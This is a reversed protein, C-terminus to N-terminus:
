KETTKTSKGLRYKIGLSLSVPRYNDNSLPYSQFDESIFLNTMSKRGDLLFSLKDTMRFELGISAALKANRLNNGSRNHEEVRIWTCENSGPTDDREVTIYERYESSYIPTSLFAGLNVDLRDGMADISLLLPITLDIISFKPDRNVPALDSISNTYNCNSSFINVSTTNGPQIETSIVMTSLNVSSSQISFANYTFGAGTSLRMIENIQFDAGLIIEAGTKPTYSRTTERNVVSSTVSITSDSITSIFRLNSESQYTHEQFSPGLARGSLYFDVKQGLVNLTCFAIITVIFFLKSRISLTTM